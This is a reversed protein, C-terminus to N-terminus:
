DGFANRIFDLALDVDYYGYADGRYENTFETFFLFRCTYFTEGTYYSQHTDLMKQIQGKNTIEIQKNHEIDDMYKSVSADKTLVVKSVMDATVEIQDAYGNEKLWIITNQSSRPVFVTHSSSHRQNPARYNIDVRAYYNRLSVADAYSQAKFDRDLCVLLENIEKKSFVGAQRLNNGDFLDVSLIQANMINSPAYLSKFEESEFIQALDKSNRAFNFPIRYGRHPDLVNGLEYDIQVWNSRVFYRSQEDEFQDHNELILRHFSRIAAINEPTTLSMTAETNGYFYNSVIGAAPPIFDTSSLVVGKIRKEAPIRNEFGTIDLTFSLIFLVAIIAYIGFSKLSSINFIRPTKKVIMRGVIFFLVAGFFFGPYLYLDDNAYSFYLGFLVMGFFAILYTIVPVMFNFVLSESARELKRKYYLVMSVAFLIIANVVYYLQLQWPFAKGATFVELYPSLALILTEWERGANFGYLFRTCFWTFTLLFAPILFNFGFAALLHLISNGTVLGAFISIAYIVLIILFSTWMWHLIDIRSFVDILPGSLINTNYVPKALILLLVGTLLLPTLTLILGSLVSSNYLKARTFPMAHISTVSASVQLYRFIVVATIVPILLHTAMFFVDYNDLMNSIKYHMRTLDNYAMLIPFVGSLFYVLFSLAPIAWFRRLNEKVLPLSVSFYSTISNM